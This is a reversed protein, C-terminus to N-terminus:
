WRRSWLAVIIYYYRAGTKCPLVNVLKCCVIVM